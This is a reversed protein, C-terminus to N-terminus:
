LLRPFFIFHLHHHSPWSIKGQVYSMARASAQIHYTSHSGYVNLGYAPFPFSFGWRLSSVFSLPRWTLHLWWIWQHLCRDTVWAPTSLKVGMGTYTNSILGLSNCLLVMFLDFLYSLPIPTPLLISNYFCYCYLYSWFYIYIYIRDLLLLVFSLLSTVITCHTLSSAALILSMFKIRVAWM